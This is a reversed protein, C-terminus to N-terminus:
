YSVRPKWLIRGTPIRRHWVVLLIWSVALLNRYGDSLQELELVQPLGM